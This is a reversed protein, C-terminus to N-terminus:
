DTVITKIGGFNHSLKRASVLEEIGKLYEETPSDLFILLWTLHRDSCNPWGFRKASEYKEPHDELQDKILRKISVRYSELLTEPTCFRSEWHGCNKCLTGRTNEISESNCNNCYRPQPKTVPLVLAGCDPCTVESSKKPHNCFLRSENQSKTKKKPM